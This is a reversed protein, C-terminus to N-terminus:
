SLSQLIVQLTQPSSANVPHVKVGPYWLEFWAEIPDPWASPNIVIVTRDDLDGIGADDASFGVTWRYQTLIGSDVVAQLWDKGADPPLLVYTRQYQSRPRGRSSPDTSTSAGSINIKSTKAEIGDASFTATYPGETIPVFAWSWLYGQGVGSKIGQSAV